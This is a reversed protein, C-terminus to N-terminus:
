HSAKPLADAAPCSASASSGGMTPLLAPGHTLAVPGSSTLHPPGCPHRRRRRCWPVSSGAAPGAASCACLVTAAAASALLRVPLHLRSARLLLASGAIADLLGGFRRARRRAIAHLAHM